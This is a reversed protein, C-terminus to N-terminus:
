CVVQNRGLDKARYLANDARELAAEFDQDGAAFESLGISITARTGAIGLADFAQLAQERMRQAIAHAQQLATQPLLAVFEDGGYRAPLDAQRLEARCVGALTTIVRDGALHGHVDNIQKLHDIDFALIAAPTGYRSFLEFQQQLAQMLKRRNALGTLPDTESQARLQAELAHRQTINSAVWLVADEGNVPFPLKQVRGEFWIPQQPGGAPLGKVDAGSLTYEVIHLGGSNLAAAIEQLFWSAKEANIVDSITQGVLGSSDHYYRQDAGGFVSAYCGSRTLIFVPDPLAALIAAQQQSSLPPHTM